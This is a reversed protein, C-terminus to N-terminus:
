LLPRYLPNGLLKLSDIILGNFKINYHVVGVLDFIITPAELRM